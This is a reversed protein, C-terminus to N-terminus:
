ETRRNVAANNYFDLYIEICRDIEHMDNSDGLRHRLFRKQKNIAQGNDTSSTWIHAGTISEECYHRMNSNKRSFQSGNDTILNEYKDPHLKKM